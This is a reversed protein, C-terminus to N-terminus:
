LTVSITGVSQIQVTTEIENYSLVTADPVFQEILKKYYLRVIPSALVVPNSMYESIKNVENVHSSVIKQMIEPEIMSYSGHETKKINNIIFNELDPNLIIVKIKGDSAFKRTITRKLAQRVYETLLDTDKITGAYDAVTELITTLDRIPIREMLLNSLVKQLDGISIIDPVIDEVISKNTKKLNDLLSAVDQRSLLEHAHKKVVESFHTLIVSLPDIVTYGNMAATDCLDETIWKASLGFAPEITDIGDIEEEVDGPNMALFYNVLVEGKDIEEGKIKIIYQNPNISANDRLRVSPIVMGIETAFQRRLMVVRDIFGGGRSEDILPLLSYGFEMEIPEINLLSYINETNKYFETESIPLAAEPVAVEQESRKKLMIGGFILISALIIILAKPFGPILALFLLVFGVIPFVDPNSTFQKTLDEGLNNESAARTVIMGMATSIMLSPLQSVLGDGVTAITYKQLVEAFSQGDQVMGIISGAIVNIFVIIISIIADGKVFKSAGDMAGYFDSERQIKLRREKAMDENILGSNLDADIAMQKGPMADLTFRAAVEAVRESGKTIVIFQVIVLIIFIIVGVVPNGGIVFQGFTKIVAGAEGGQGLILRTSSINLAVRFLTTILLLSPFISFELPEKIFMSILFICLSITMNFILMLDLLVPNLPIIILFIVCSVFLAVVSNKLKM